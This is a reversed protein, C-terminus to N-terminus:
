QGHVGVELGCQDVGEVVVTEAQTALEGGVHDRRVPQEVNFHSLPQVICHTLKDVFQDQVFVEMTKGAFKPHNLSLPLGILRGTIGNMHSPRPHRNTPYRIHWELSLAENKTFEPGLRILVLFSWPGRGHTARAGGVLEGNHQRLRRTPHTTYGNYTRGQQNAVIYCYHQQQQQQQQQQQSAM